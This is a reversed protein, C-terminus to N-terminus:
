TMVVYAIFGAAILAAIVVKLGDFKRTTWLRTM